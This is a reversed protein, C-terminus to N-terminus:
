KSKINFYITRDDTRGGVTIIRNVAKLKKGLIGGSIWITVTSDDHSDSEKTIGDQVEPWSSESIVDGDLWSSWDIQYDLIADPDKDFEKNM